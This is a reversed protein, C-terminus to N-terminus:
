AFNALIIRYIERNLAVGDVAVADNQAVPQSDKDFFYSYHGSGDFSLELYNGNSEWYLAIEGNGSLMAKPLSAQRPLLNLIARAERAIEFSAPQGDYGDWDRPLDRFQRIRDCLKNFGSDWAGLMSTAGVVPSTGYTGSSQLTVWGEYGSSGALAYSHEPIRHGLAHSDYSSLM